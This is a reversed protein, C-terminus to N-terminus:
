RSFSESDNLHSASINLNAAYPYGTTMKYQSSGLFPFETFISM